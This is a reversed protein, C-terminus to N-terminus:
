TIVGIGHHGILDVGLCAINNNSFATQCASEISRFYYGGFEYHYIGLVSTIETLSWSILIGFGHCWNPIVTEWRCHHVPDQALTFIGNPAACWNPCAIIDSFNATVVAPIGQGEWPKGGGWCWFCEEGDGGEFQEPELGM